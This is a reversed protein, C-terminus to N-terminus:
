VDRLGYFLDALAATTSVRVTREGKGEAGTRAVEREVIPAVVIYM